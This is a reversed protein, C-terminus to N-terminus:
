DAASDDGWLEKLIAAEDGNGDIQFTKIRQQDGSVLAVRSKAVGFATALLKGVAKNAKGDEPVARVRVKLFERGRADEGGGDIRDAAAKPTVRVTLRM